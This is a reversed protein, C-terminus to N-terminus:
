LQPFLFEVIGGSPHAVKLFFITLCVVAALVFAVIAVGYHEDM